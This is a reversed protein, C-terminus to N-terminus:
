DEGIPCNIRSLILPRYIVLGIVFSFPVSSIETGDFFWLLRKKLSINFEIVM